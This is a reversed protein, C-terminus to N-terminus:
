SFEGRKIYKEAERKSLKSLNHNNIFNLVWKYDTKSYERLAWGIAKQIFFEDDDINSEISKQLIELNTNEKYRLQFIISSRRLWMNEDNIWFVIQEDILSPYKKCIEGLLNSAILDVTDWWSKTIILDKIFFIDDKLFYKKMKILYDIAIYQFERYDKNFFKVVFEKDIEKNNKFNEFIQKFIEKRKPSKIGLFKFKNRMYLSMAIADDENKFEFM